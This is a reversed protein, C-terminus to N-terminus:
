NVVIFTKREENNTSAATAQQSQRTKYVIYTLLAIVLLVVLVLVVIWITCIKRGKAKEPQLYESKIKGEKVSFPDSKESTGVYNSVEM